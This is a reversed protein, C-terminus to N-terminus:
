EKIKLLISLDRTTISAEEFLKGLLDLADAEIGERTEKNNPQGIYKSLKQELRLKLYERARRKKMKRVNKKNL